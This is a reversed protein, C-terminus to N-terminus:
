RVRRLEVELDMKQQYLSRRVQTVDFVHDIDQEFATELDERLLSPFTDVVPMLFFCNFQAPCIFWEVPILNPNCNGFACSIATSLSSSDREAAQSFSSALLSNQANDM